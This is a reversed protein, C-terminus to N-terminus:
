RVIVSCYHENMSLVLYGQLQIIHGAGDGKWWRNGWRTGERLSPTSIMLTMYIYDYALTVIALTVIVLAM